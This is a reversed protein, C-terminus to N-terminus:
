IFLYIFIFFLSLWLFSCGSCHIWLSIIIHVSLNAQPKQDLEWPCRYSIVRNAHSCHWGGGRGDESLRLEQTPLCILSYIFTYDPSSCWNCLIIIQEQLMQRYCWINLCGLLKATQIEFDWLSLDWLTSQQWTIFMTQTKRTSSKNESLITKM